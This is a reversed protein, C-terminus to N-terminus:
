VSGSMLFVHEPPIHLTLQKSADDALHPCSAKSVEVQFICGKCTVLVTTSFVGEIKELIQCAFTTDSESDFSSLSLHHARVGAILAKAIPNGAKKAAKFVLEKSQLLYYADNDDIVTVDFFNKCGTIRAATLNQPTHIIAEKTGLQVNEGQDMIMIHDSIRYAEEINHTVLLVIGDFNNKIIDILEKELLHKIHSDLASFPEDLLLLEPEKILTRALAVRQQQGGSLQSPYRKELGELQMRSIMQTIKQHREEKPLEKIGYAINQSVTLHPFLAYNQFVYGINRLRPPVNIKSDSSFLIRDNLKITGKDPTNLGAICKLTMSKGCGSSGLIALVGKEIKFYTNLKFNGLSKEIAAELM